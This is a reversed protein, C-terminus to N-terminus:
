ERLERGTLHLFVARLDPQHVEMDVLEIGNKHLEALRTPLDKAVNETSTVLCNEATMVFGPIHTDAPLPMAVYCAVQRETGVTTKLLEQFSGEAIVQGHDMIVIRDCVEQAEDLQHTTLLISTEDSRLEELMKWLHNRSQPDVGVTPEDLILIRPRHMLGCVVNLRRQMGGSFTEVLDSARDQLGSWDLAWAIRDKLDRRAVGHLSGFVHLNEVATLKEYLAIEQPVIGISPIGTDGQAIHIAGSDLEVRGSISRVLTSKGAGNPGLLALCEGAHLSFSVGALAVVTDFSKHISDFSLVDM